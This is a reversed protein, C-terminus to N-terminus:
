AARGFIQAELQALREAHENLATVLKNNHDMVAALRRELAAIRRQEPTLAEFEAVDIDLQAVFERMQHLADPSVKGGEPLAPFKADRPRLGLRKARAMVPLAANYTERLQSLRLDAPSERPIRERELRELMRRAERVNNPVIAHADISVIKAGIHQVLDGHIDPRVPLDNTLM